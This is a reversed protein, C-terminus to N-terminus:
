HEYLEGLTTLTILDLLNLHAPWAPLISPALLAKLINFPLGVFFFGLVYQVGCVTVGVEHIGYDSTVLGQYLLVVQFGFWEMM